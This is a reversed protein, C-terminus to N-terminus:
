ERAEDRAPIVGRALCAVLEDGEMLAHEDGLANALVEDVREAELQLRRLIPLASLVQGLELADRLPLVFTQNGDHVIKVNPELVQDEYETVTVEFVRTDYVVRDIIVSM